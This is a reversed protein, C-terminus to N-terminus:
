LSTIWWSNGFPDKIGCTRGYDQNTLPMLMKAGAQIAKNFTEDAEKVYIFLNANQLKWEETAEGLMITSGNIEIESHMITIKDERYSTIIQQANFVMKTFEFFKDAGHLLLYPMISQHGPPLKM